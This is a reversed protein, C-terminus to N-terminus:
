DRWLEGTYNAASIPTNTEDVLSVWTGNGRLHKLGGSSYVIEWTGDMFLSSIPAWWTMFMVVTGRAHGVRGRFVVTLAGGISQDPPIVGAFEDHSTGTFTGVWTGDEDGVAYQSGGDVARVDFGTNVWTWTGQAKQPHTAFATPVCVVMLITALCLAVAFAKTKGTM